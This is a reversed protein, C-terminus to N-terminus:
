QSQSSNFNCFWRKSPKHTAHTSHTVGHYYSSSILNRVRKRNARSKIRKVFTSQKLKIQVGLGHPWPVSSEIKYGRDATVPQCPVVLTPQIPKGIWPLSLLRPTSQHQRTVRTVFLQLLVIKDGTIDNSACPRHLLDLYFRSSNCRFQDQTVHSIWDGIIKRAMVTKERYGITSKSTHVWLFLSIELM